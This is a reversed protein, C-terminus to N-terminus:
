LSAFRVESMQGPTGLTLEFVPSILELHMGRPMWLVWIVILNKTQEAFLRKVIVVPDALVDPLLVAVM